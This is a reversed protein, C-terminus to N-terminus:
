IRLQIVSKKPNFKLTKKKEKKKDINISVNSYNVDHRMLNSYSHGCSSKNGNKLNMKSYLDDLLSISVTNDASVNSYTKFIQKTFWDKPPLTLSDGSTEDNHRVNKAQTIILIISFILLTLQTSM